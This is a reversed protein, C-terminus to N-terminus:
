VNEEILISLAPYYYNQLFFHFISMFLLRVSYLAKSDYNIPDCLNM